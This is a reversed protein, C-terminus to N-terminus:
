GRRGWCDLGGDWLAHLNTGKGLAQV